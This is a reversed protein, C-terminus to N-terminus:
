KNEKNTKEIHCPKCLVQLNAIGCFLRAIYTNWDEFGKKPNIVPVIHDVQVETRKFDNSCHACKFVCVMKQNGNKYFGMRKLLKANNLCLTREKTQYSLRRLASTIKSKL